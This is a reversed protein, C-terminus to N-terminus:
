DSIEVVVENSVLSVPTSEQVRAMAAPDHGEISPLGSWKMRPLNSYFFVVRYTGAPPLQSCGIWHKLDKGDGPRLVFIEHPELTNINGCRGLVGNKPHTPHPKGSGVPLFSWGVVPTRWSSDSGDGPMVLTVPGKGNNCLRFTIQEPETRNIVAPLDLKRLEDAWPLAVMHLGCPVRVSATGPELERLQPLLAVLRPKESARRFRCIAVKDKAAMAAVLAEMAVTSGPRTETPEVFYSAKM